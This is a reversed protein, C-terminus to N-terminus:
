GEGNLLSKLETGVAFAVTITAPIKIAEGTQPHRGTRESRRKKTFTGFGPYTFRPTQNKTIKAKIFYDGLEAFVGDIIEGVAKKTLGAQTGRRQHVRDILEQKTM